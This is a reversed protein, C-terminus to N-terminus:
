LRPAQDPDKNDAHLFKADKAILICGILTRIQHVPRDSNPVYGFICRINSNMKINTM